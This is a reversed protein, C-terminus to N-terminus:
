PAAAGALPYGAEVVYPGGGVSDRASFLVFRAAAFQLPPFYGRASLYDAVAHPSTARLRAITVHPTFKRPEPAVGIRRLRREHEAQLEVIAPSAKVTAVIARPKDAGFWSLADVTVQFAARRIENLTEAAEGALRPEIDGIFRLTIHYDAPEIWRAGPIGGRLTSLEAAIAAPFKSAPSFGLCTSNRAQIPGRGDPKARSNRRRSSLPWVCDSRTRSPNPSGSIPTASVACIPSATRPAITYRRTLGGLRDYM